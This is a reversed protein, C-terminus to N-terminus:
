KHGGSVFPSNVYQVQYKKGRIELFHIDEKNFLERDVLALCIGKQITPSFTGSSVMGIEQNNQFVKQGPRPIGKDAILKILTKQAKYNQLATKGIFDEKNLKVTWKLNCDFPSLSPLLDQGYLPFSAELRLVDRAGLGCPKVGQNELTKWLKIIHNNKGFVEFGDEGTYGTRALIFDKYEKVGFYPISNLEVSLAKELQEQSEPGQIALLSMRDSKDEFKCEFNKKELINQVWKRDQDINAANVCLLVLEDSLCYAIADDLMKGREDCLTSYLAKNPSLSMFDNTILYDVANRAEKGQFFFEGMHSVDFVGSHNRVSQVEDKINSYQIPMQWGSFDVMKAKKDLHVQYLATKKTM